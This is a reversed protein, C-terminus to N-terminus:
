RRIVAVPQCRPEHPGAAIAPSTNGWTAPKSPSGRAVPLSVGAFARVQDFGASAGAPPNLGVFPELTSVLAVGRNGLPLTGRV